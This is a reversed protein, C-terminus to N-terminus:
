LCYGTGICFIVTGQESSLNRRLSPRIMIQIDLAVTTYPGFGELVRAIFLVSDLYVAM